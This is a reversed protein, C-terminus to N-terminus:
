LRLWSLIRHEHSVNGTFLNGGSRFGTLLDANRINAGLGVRLNFNIFVTEALLKRATAFHEMEYCTADEDGNIFGFHRDPVTMAGGGAIAWLELVFAGELAPEDSDEDVLRGEQEAPLFALRGDGRFREGFYTLRFPM